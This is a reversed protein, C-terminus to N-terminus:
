STCSRVPQINNCMSSNRVPQINNCRRNVYVFFFDQFAIQLDQIEKLVSDVASRQVDKRKWLNVLELCDTELIVRQEGHQRALRLGDRCALAEMMCADLARNYWRAQAVMFGGQHDRIICAMARVDSVAQFAADSNIKM